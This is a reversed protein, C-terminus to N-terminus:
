YGAVRDPAPRHGAASASGKPAQVRAIERGQTALYRMCDLLHDDVKVVRGRDDRHYTAMEGRWQVLMRSHKLRGEAMLQWCTYIGSEVSGPGKITETLRLGLDNYMTLLERGDVQSRGRAASDILGPIWEGRARIAQAHVSPEVHGRKYESYLHMSWDTPDWAAWLCATANWGVDLAYARPWYDPIRFPDEQLDELAVPYIAGVGLSPIGRARADRMHPPYSALLETKAAEDLHPVDDWTATVLYRSPSVAPM